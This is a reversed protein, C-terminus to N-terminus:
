GAAEMSRPTVELGNAPGDLVQFAVWAQGLAIGGDNPPVRQHWYPRFGEARLRHVARETLYRNQFCGGTLVIRDEGVRRAVEVVIEALTNHFRAAMRATPLGGRVDELLALVMKEWDVIMRPGDQNRCEGDHIEFPYVDETRLYGMAYELEMAAQGEFCSRGRLGVIAAVADFLRGASSTWPSQVGRTLMTRLARREAPRFFRLGPAEERDFWDEGMTAFLLGAASRRPERVAATGGPLRFIRFTAERRYGEADTRLFEGGWVTGDPGYGTGDWAVGLVPGELGNDAMCSAVHAHHHQVPTVPIAGSRAYRTSGYDPHLDCLIHEPQSAYLRRFDTIVRHFAELAEKKDLDGIHPSIFVHNGATLAVTNKLHGGVALVSPLPRPFSVQLPAYGRARRLVLERGMVIRVVSDDAHRVIPRNHVLFRDAIGGLREIAEQEDICIPEDSRNGSTAVVPRNFGAMLLHHLPTYPLLVGLDPNGPAVSPAITRRTEGVRSRLLVIPAEPSLLLRAELESVECATRVSDLSPFMVAFPKEERHKRRRLRGVAEHDAADALLHFGGLGKVAVIKGQRLAAVAEQLARDNRSLVGGGDDWLALRPGCDFCANPQAHFRRDDPDEYEDRCRDCMRFDKMSTGARDYPLSEIITFRPGCNTCNTFPYRFRRNRPDSLDRLCDPCVAIDPLAPVTPAGDIGSPRIEFGMYGARDLFSFELGHISSRRPKEREIRLLFTDLRSKAGEAEVVLGDSSNMVWGSLGSERALRYIFPRFGVGQVAGRVTIRIRQEAMLDVGM